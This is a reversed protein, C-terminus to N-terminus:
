KEETLYRKDKLFLRWFLIFLPILIAMGIAYGILLSHYMTLNTLADYITLEPYVMYPMHSWGYAFSALGIQIIMLIVAVRPQGVRGKKSPWWMASYGIAFAILSLAFLEWQRVMNDVMWMAEPILTMTAAVAFSLMIPGFIIANRRYVKYTDMSKAERAYDSLFLASLFLEASIGFGIHAYLTPSTLLENYLIYHRDGVVEVFGGIIIPLVSVMLAPILLGTLGSIYTFLKTYKQVTYSYVMFASRIILLILVFSVPVIMLSGLSYAAGPFFGVLAVVFLVLFVNTVEWSPSLYLNAVSAATSDKRGYYFMSWFGAGFDIAGGLAYMFLFLWIISIAVYAENM